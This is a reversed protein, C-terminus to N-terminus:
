LVAEVSMVTENAKNLLNERSSANSPTFRALDCAEICEAVSQHIAPEVEARELQEQILELSIGQGPREWKDGFYDFIARSLGAYFLESDSSQTSLRQTARRYNKLAFKPRMNTRRSQSRSRLFLGTFVLLDLALFSVALKTLLSPSYLQLREDTPGLERLKIYSMNQEAVIMRRTGLPGGEALTEGALVELKFTESGASRYVEDIPDFYDFSPQVFELSGERRPVLAFRWTKSQIVGWRKNVTPAGGDFVEFDGALFQTQPEPVGAFNGQGSLELNMSVSEGMEITNKDLSGKLRFRGVTGNFGKPRGDTPLPKINLTLKNTQREVRQLRWKGRVGVTLTFEAPEIHLEGSKNAYLRRQVIIAQDLRVGNKTIRRENPEAEVEEVWYDEFNPLQMSSGQNSLSVDPTSYLVVNLEIMEGLYYTKKPVEMEVFVQPEAAQRRPSGETVSIRKKPSLWTKGNFIIEQAPFELNGKKTPRLYYTYITYRSLKGNFLSVKHSSNPGSVLQFDGEDLGNPFTPVRGTEQDTISIVFSLNQDIRLQTPTVRFDVQAFGSIAFLFVFLSRM